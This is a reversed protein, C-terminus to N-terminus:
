LPLNGGNTTALLWRRVVASLLYLRGVKVRSSGDIISIEIHYTTGGWL